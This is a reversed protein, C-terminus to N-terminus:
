GRVDVIVKGINRGSLMRRYAELTNELGVTEDFRMNLRGEEHWRRLMPTFGAAREAFDPLFFGTITLRKMLVQDFHAPGPARGQQAYVSILGCVAIRGYLAMNALAADLIEGGVNDFYVDVGGGVDALAATVDEAKYDIARDVGIEELLFRKKDPGGAIGIVRAGLNRAIQCALSGTAGAAASVLVTEGERVKAVEVLGAYATWANLGLAGFWQRPDDVSEELRTLMSAEPTVVSYDAWQGFARVRDGARFSPHASEVVTGLALGTMKSGLPLPPQYGDTRASMWMRTGADMSLWENRIVLEGAAPPQLGETELSLAAEFDMESPRANLRWYRNRTM